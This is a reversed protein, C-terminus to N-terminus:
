SKPLLLTGAKHFQITDVHGSQKGDETIVHMHINSDHHTFVGHHHDSYFGVFRVAENEVTFPIKIKDHREKTHPLDDTKHVIHFVVKSPTSKVAFPFPRQIDIGLKKAARPVFEAFQKEDEIEAPIPVERWNEVQAYVLFCAKFAFSKAVAIKGERVQAISPVGDWVTVEGKLGEVPGLAYLHRTKALLGLDIAARLDGDRMVKRMEGVYRVEPVTPPEAAQSLAALLTVFCVSRRM